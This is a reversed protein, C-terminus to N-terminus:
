SHFCHKNWFYKVLINWFGLVNNILMKELVCCPTSFALVYSMFIPEKALVKWPFAVPTLRLFIDIVKTLWWDKIVSWFWLWNGNTQVLEQENDNRDTSKLTKQLV